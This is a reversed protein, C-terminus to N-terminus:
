RACRFGIGSSTFSPEMVGLIALPGALDGGVLFGGGRVLAGPGGTPELGVLCQFDGTPSLGPSWSGECYGSSRPVWDAVWENQNGVMDYAGDASVCAARSGTPVPGTPEETNCDSIGDDPGPDPSGAVAAQWEANSPLRKRSNRCAAQAQFWTLNASPRVAPLSLAFIDNTCNQGSDACPAYDDTDTGLQTASGRVLDALRARGQQIKKVLLANTTAADPVRWVSAEYKDMCATGSVVADRACRTLPRLGQADAAQALAVLAAVLVMKNLLTTM